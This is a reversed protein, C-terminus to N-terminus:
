EANFVMTVAISDNPNNEDFFVYMYKSIGPNGEPRYDAKFTSDISGANILQADPTVSVNPPYCQVGWCIQNVSGAVVELEYRKVKVSKASSGTNKVLATAEILPRTASESVSDKINLLEFSKSIPSPPPVPNPSEEDGCSTLIFLIFVFSLLSLLSFHFSAKIM